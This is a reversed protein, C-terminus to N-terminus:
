PFIIFQGSSKKQYSPLPIQFKLRRRWEQLYLQSELFTEGKGKFVAHNKSISQSTNWKPFRLPTPSVRCHHRRRWMGSEGEEWRPENLLPPPPPPPPARSTRPRHAAPQHENTCKIQALIIAQFFPPSLAADGHCFSNEWNRKSEKEEKKYMFTDSQLTKYAQLPRRRKM